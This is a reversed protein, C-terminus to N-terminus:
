KTKPSQAAGGTEAAKRAVALANAVEEAIITRLRSEGEAGQHIAVAKAADQIAVAKVADQVAVAKVADQVAVAKAADQIAVAKVADQVAVAKVADQIAAVATAADGLARLSQRIETSSLLQVSSRLKEIAEDIGAEHESKGSSVRQDSM